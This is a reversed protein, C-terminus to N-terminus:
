PSVKCATQIDFDTQADVDDHNVDVGNRDLGDLVLRTATFLFIENTQSGPIVSLEADSIAGRGSTADMRAVAAYGADITAEFSARDGSWSFNGYDLDRLFEARVAGNDGALIASPDDLTDRIAAADADSLSYGTLKQVCVTGDPLSVQWEIDTAALADSHQMWPQWPLGFGAAAAALGTGTLVLATAGAILATRAPRRRWKALSPRAEDIAAALVRDGEPTPVGGRPAASTLLADLHNPGTDHTMTHEKDKVWSMGSGPLLTRPPAFLLAVSRPMPFLPYGSPTGNQCFLVSALRNV